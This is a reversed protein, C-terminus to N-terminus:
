LLVTIYRVLIIGNYNILVIIIILICHFFHQPSIACLMIFYHNLLTIFYAPLAIM